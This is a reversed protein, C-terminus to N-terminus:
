LVADWKEADEKDALAKKKLQKQTDGMFLLIVIVVSYVLLLFLVLSFALSFLMLVELLFVLIASICLILLASASKKMLMIYGVISLLYVPIISFSIWHPIMFVMHQVLCAAALLTGFLGVNECFAEQQKTLSVM